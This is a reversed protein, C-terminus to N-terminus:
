INFITKIDQSSLAAIWNNHVDSIATGSQLDVSQDELIGYVTLTDTNIYTGVSPLYILTEEM